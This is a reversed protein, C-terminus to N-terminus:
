QIYFLNFYLTILNGTVFAVSMDHRIVPKQDM